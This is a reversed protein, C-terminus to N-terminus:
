RAVPSGARERLWRTIVAGGGVLMGAGVITALNLPGDTAHFLQTVVSLLPDPLVPPTDNYQAAFTWVIWVEFTLYAGVLAYAVGVALSQLRWALLALLMAAGVAGVIALSTILAQWHPDFTAAADRQAERMVTTDLWAMVALTALAAGLIAAAKGVRSM